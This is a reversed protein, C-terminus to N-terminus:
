KEARAFWRAREEKKERGERRKKKITIQSTVQSLSSPLTYRQLLLSLDDCNLGITEPRRREQGDSRIEVPNTHEM